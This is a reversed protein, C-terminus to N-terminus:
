GVKAQEGKMRGNGRKWSGTSSELILHFNNLILGKKMSNEMSWSMSFLVVGKGFPLMAALHHGPHWQSRVTGSGYLGKEKRCCTAEGRGGALTRAGMAGSGNRAVISEGGSSELGGCIRAGEVSGVAAAQAAGAFAQRAGM